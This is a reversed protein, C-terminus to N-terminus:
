YAYAMMGMTSAEKPPPCLESPHGIEPLERSPTERLGANFLMLNIHYTLRARIVLITKASEECTETTWNRYEDCSCHNEQLHDELLDTSRRLAMQLFELESKYVGADRLVVKKTGCSPLVLGCVLLFLHLRRRVIVEVDACVYM